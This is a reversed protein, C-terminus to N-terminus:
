LNNTLLWDREEGDLVRNFFVVQDVEMFTYLNDIETFTRGIVLRGNRPTTDQARITNDILVHVGNVYTSFSYYKRGRFISVDVNLM